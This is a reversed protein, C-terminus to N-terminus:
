YGVPSSRAEYRRVDGGLIRTVMARMGRGFGSSGAEPAAGAPSLEGRLWRQLEDLDSLSLAEVDVSVAYYSRRGRQPPRLPPRFPLSTALVADSLRTFEGLTTPRGGAVRTVTYIRALQDFRVIVDWEVQDDLANFLRGLSWLEVRSHLRLPFGNRLLDGVTATDLLQLFRVVPTGESVTAPARIEITPQQAQLPSTCVGVLLAALWWARAPRLAM